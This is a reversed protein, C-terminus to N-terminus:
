DILPGLFHASVESLHFVFFGIFMNFLHGVEGAMLSM